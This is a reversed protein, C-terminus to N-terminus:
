RGGCAYGKTASQVGVVGRRAISLVASPNIATESAFNIGDIETSTTGTGGFAYGNTASEVGSGDLYSRGVPLLASLQATTDTSFTITQIKNSPADYTGLHYSKTATQVDAGMWQNSPLSAGAISCTADAFKFKEIRTLYSAGGVIYGNTESSAGMNYYNPNTLATAPNIYAETVLSIGDIEATPATTYGGACYAANGYASQAKKRKLM